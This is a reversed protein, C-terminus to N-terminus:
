QVEPSFLDPVCVRIGDEKREKKTGTKEAKEARPVTCKMNM